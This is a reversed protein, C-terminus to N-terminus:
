KKRAQTPTQGLYRKFCAALHQSSCYGLRQSVSTVTAGAEQLMQQAKSLRARHSYEMPATGVEKLFSAHFHSVPITVM